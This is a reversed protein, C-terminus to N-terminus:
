QRTNNTVNGCTSSSGIKYLLSRFIDMETFCEKQFKRDIERAINDILFLLKDNIGINNYILVM